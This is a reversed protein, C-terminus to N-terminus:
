AIGISQFDIGHVPLFVGFGTVFSTAGCEHFMALAAKRYFPRSVDEDKKICYFFWLCNESITFMNWLVAALM